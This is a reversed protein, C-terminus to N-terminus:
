LRQNRKFHSAWFQVYHELLLILVLCFPVRVDWTKSGDLGGSLANVKAKVAECQQWTHLTHLVMVQLGMEATSTDTEAISNGKQTQANTKKKEINPVTHQDKSFKMYSHISTKWQFKDMKIKIRHEM